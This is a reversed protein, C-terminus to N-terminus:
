RSIPNYGPAILQKITTIWERNYQWSFALYTFVFVVIGVPLQWLASIPYTAAWAFATSILTAFLAPSISSNYAIFGVGCAPRVLMRWALVYVGAQWVVMTWALAFLGGQRAAVWLVPVTFICLLLNWAHARRALGVAYLLSGSTNGTSRILGWIAFLRLFTFAENWQTGLMFYVVEESFLALLAYIPFNFSATLRLTKLYVEQLAARDSQLRTMVPLGVRTIIPNIFANSIKLSLDRPVSYTAVGHPTTFLSAIFVDAQMLLTNWFGDGMRHFAFAMFPQARTWRFSATPRLGHSLRLWALASNGATSVLQGAVLSYVGMELWGASIVAVTFSVFTSAIENQALPKFRLEKEAMVRYQQGLASLPFSLALWNIVAILGPQDLTVALPLGALAFLLALASAMLLNLWFLTSLTMRDPKPRHMLASSLGLDAFITVVAVAVGAMAMLGFDAPTLMRALVATQLLQMCTRFVASTTTWRTASYTARRLTM